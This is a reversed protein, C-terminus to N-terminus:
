VEAPPKPSYLRLTRFLWPAGATVWLTILAFRLFVLLHYNGIHTFSGIIKGTAVYLLVMVTIGLTYRVSLVHYKVGGPPSGSKNEASATFDVYRRCLFYGTGLGLLLGAPMLPEESPRYMIMLFALAACALLGARPSGSALLTEIRKGAIFYGCLIIGGIIWGGFVDTPFHVGLYVRSFGILLCLFAAAFYHWKKKGWSAIIMLFVLSNQAHGSPFGGLKEPILGVSPDYEAFFPRPQDLFLKLAITVWASILVTIGLRLCKKEDICWYLLPLLIMYVTVSGMGTIIRMIMTLPPNAVSQLLRIWDLGRQLIGEM